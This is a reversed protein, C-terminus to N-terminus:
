LYALKLAHNYAGLNYIFNDTAALSQNIQFDVNIGFRVLCWTIRDDIKASLNDWCHARNSAQSSGREFSQFDRAKTRVTFLLAIENLNKDLTLDVVKIKEKELPLVHSYWFFLVVSPQYRSKRCPQQALGVQLHKGKLGHIESPRLWNLHQSKHSSFSFWM